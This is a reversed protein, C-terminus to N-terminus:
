KENLHMFGGTPQLQVCLAYMLEAVSRLGCGVRKDTVNSRKFFAKIRKEIMDPKTCVRHPIAFM